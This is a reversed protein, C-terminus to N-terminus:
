PSAAVTAQWTFRQAAVHGPQIPGIPSDIPETAM